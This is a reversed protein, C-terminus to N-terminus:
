KWKLEYTFPSPYKRKIYDNGFADDYRFSVTWRINDTVNEGSRHVMFSSFLLMDGFEMKIPGFPGVEDKLV